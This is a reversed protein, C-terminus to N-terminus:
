HSRLSFIHDPDTLRQLEFMLGILHDNQLQIAKRNYANSNFLGSDRLDAQQMAERCFPCKLHLAICYLDGCNFLMQSYCELCIMKDMGKECTKCLFHLKKKHDCCIACVSVVPEIENDNANAANTPM